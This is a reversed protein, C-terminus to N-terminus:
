KQIICHINNSFLGAAQATGFAFYRSFDRNITCNRLTTDITIQAKYSQCIVGKIVLVDISSLMLSALLFLSSIDQLRDRNLPMKLLTNNEWFKEEFALDVVNAYNTIIM